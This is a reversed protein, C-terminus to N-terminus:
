QKLIEPEHLAHALSSKLRCFKNSSLYLFHKTTLNVLHYLVTLTTYNCQPTALRYPVLSQSQCENTRIWGGWGNIWSIVRIIQFDRKVLPQALNKRVIYVQTIYKGLMLAVLAVAKM